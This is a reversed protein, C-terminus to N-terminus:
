RLLDVVKTTSSPTNTQTAECDEDRIETLSHELKLADM